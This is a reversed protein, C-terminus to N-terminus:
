WFRFPFYSQVAFWARYSLRDGYRLDGNTSFNPLNERLINCYSKWFLRKNHQSRIRMRSENDKSAGFKIIIKGYMFIKKFSKQLYKRIAQNENYGYWSMIGWGQMKFSLIM